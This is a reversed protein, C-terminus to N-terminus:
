ETFAKAGPLITPPWFRLIPRGVINKEPVPGWARSDSSGYRNDGMVWYEDQSLTRSESDSRPYKVYPEDLTFTKGNKDTISVEGGKITVTEGPLGIVRKIFFKSPDKPYRFILVSGREPERFHYTLEDVILYQGNKFTPDMSAGDVIFPQAVFKRFPVVVLFAILLLKILEKWFPNKKKEDMAREITNSLNAQCLPASSTTIFFYIKKFFKKKARYNKVLFKEARALREALCL